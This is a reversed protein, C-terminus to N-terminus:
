ITTLEATKKLYTDTTNLSAFGPSWGQNSLPLERIQKAITAWHSEAEYMTAEVITGESPYVQIAALRSVAQWDCPKVIVPFIELMGRAWRELLEPILEKHVFGSALFDASVLLVVVSSRAVMCAVAKRSDAGLEAEWVRLLDQRALVQLHTVLRDKWREDAPSYAVLINPCGEMRDHAQCVKRTKGLSSSRSTSGPRHHYPRIM